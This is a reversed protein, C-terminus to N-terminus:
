GMRRIENWPGMYSNWPYMRTRMWGNYSLSSLGGAALFSFQSSSSTTPMHWIGSLEGLSPDEPFYSMNQCKEREIATGLVPRLVSKRFWISSVPGVGM